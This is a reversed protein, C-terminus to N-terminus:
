PPRPSRRSKRQRAQTPHRLTASIHRAERENLFSYYVEAGEKMANDLLEVVDVVERLVWEVKKDYVNKCSHEYAKAIENARDWAAQDSSARVLRVQLEFPKRIGPEEPHLSELLLVAAYWRASKRAHMIITVHWSRRESGREQLHSVSPDDAPRTRSRDRRLTLLLTPAVVITSGVTAADTREAFRFGCWDHQGHQVRFTAYPDVVTQCNPASSASRPLRTRM